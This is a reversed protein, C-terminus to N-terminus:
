TAKAWAVQDRLYVPLGRDAAVGKGRAFAAAGLQAVNRAHCLRGPDVGLLRAGLRQALADGQAAWGSGVGFWDGGQPIQVRDPAAVQEAGLPQALGEGDIRYVGWYLEGMRADFAALLRREGGAGFRGQALAALTSVGVLPLDAGFATGQAVGVAIRVGTFAGPGRGFALADLDALGIGAEDLLGQMMGLILAGHRRPQVDFRERVEGDLLLAASCADTATDIALLKM